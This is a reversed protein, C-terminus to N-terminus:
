RNIPHYSPNEVVQPGNIGSLVLKPFGTRVITEYDHDIKPPWICFFVLAENGTNVVRHAMRGPVYCMQGPSMDMTESKGDMSHMLLIGRGSLIISLEDGDGATHFHGRSFYYEKGVKGPLIRTIGFSLCRGPAENEMEWMEYVVPDDKKLISDAATVDSFYNKLTSLRRQSSSGPFTKQFAEPNLSLTFPNITQTM